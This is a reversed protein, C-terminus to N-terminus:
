ASASARCCAPGCSPATSTDPTFDISYYLSVTCCGLGVFLLVRPDVRTMLRGAVLMAVGHRHRAHRAAPRCRHDPYGMMNQLFPAMLAMSAVLLVGCVFM